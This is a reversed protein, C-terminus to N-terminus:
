QVLNQDTKLIFFNVGGPSNRGTGSEGIPLREFVIFLNVVFCKKEMSKHSFIFKMWLKWEYWLDLM